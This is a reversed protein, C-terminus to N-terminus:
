VANVSHRSGPEFGNVMLDAIAHGVVQPPKVTQPDEGPYARARMTTRTKGPDLIATRINAINVVEDGYARLLVEFAAKSAAYAGWYPRASQAVSSTIGLVRANSSNKLMRDFSAILAQQAMLNLTILRNFEKGDIQAVPGLTGLTAANLVLIDLAEWRGSIAAALRAIGEPDTLDVPAITASGGAAFITEEVNELHKDNRATLIVHAGREALAVATAAGIGESAGTVLALQGSLPGSHSTADTM